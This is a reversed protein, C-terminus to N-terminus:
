AVGVLFLHYTWIKLAKIIVWWGLDFGDVLGCEFHATKQTRIMTQGPQNMPIVAPYNYM